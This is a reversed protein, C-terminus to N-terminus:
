EVIVTIADGRVNDARLTVTYRKGEYNASDFTFKNGTEGAERGDVYWKYTGFGEPATITVRDGKQLTVPSQNTILNLGTKDWELTVTLNIREREITLTYSVYTDNEATITITITNQGEALNVEFTGTTAADASAGIRYKASAGAPVTFSVTAKNVTNAVTYMFPATIPESGNVTLTTLSNDGSRVTVTVKNSIVNSGDTSEAWIEATGRALPTVVGNADVTAKTEDSSKWTLTGDTVGSPAVTATISGTAGGATLLLSSPSLTISSVLKPNVTVLCAATKGGDVTTVTITASGVARATVTGASDVVAVGSNSTSWTVAANSAGSPSVTAELVGTEGVILSLSGKDLTVGTVPVTVTVVCAATKGGDVTTVTIIASGGGVATVVGEEDVTAVTANSSEWTVEQNTANSPSIVYILKEAYGKILNLTSNLSVGTVLIDGPKARTISLIYDKERGDEAILTFSARNIGVFPLNVRFTGDLQDEWLMSEFGSVPKRVIKTKDDNGAYSVVVVDVSNEVSYIFDTELVDKGDVTFSRFSTDGSLVTVVVTNSVANDFGEQERATAYIEAEGWGVAQVKGGEDVVAVEEDTSSWTYLPRTPNGPEVVPTLTVYGAEEPTNGGISLTVETPTLIIGTIPRFEERVALVTTTVPAEEGLSVTITITNEGTGLSVPGTGEVVAGNVTIEVVLGVPIPEPLPLTLEKEDYGLAAALTWVGTEENYTYEDGGALNERFEAMFNALIQADTPRIIYVEEGEVEEKILIYTSGDPLEITIGEDGKTFTFQQGLLTISVPENDELRNLDLVGDETLLAKLEEPLEEPSVGFPVPITGDFGPITYTGDGNSIVETGLIQELLTQVIRENPEEPFPFPFPNNDGNGAPNSCGAVLLAIVAFVVGVQFLWHFKKNM